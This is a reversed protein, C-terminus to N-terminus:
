KRKIPFYLDLQHETKEKNTDASLRYVFNLAEELLGGMCEGTEDRYDEIYDPNNQVWEMLWKWEHFDGINITHVAYLGGDFKKKSLPYEVEMNEPITVWFEYGYHTNEPSPNPHNFGFVRADPKIKFLNKKKIFDRLLKEANEEPSEGTYHSSAAIFPPLYLIRVNKLKSLEKGANNLEDMYKEEKLGNRQPILSGTLKDAIKSNLILISLKSDSNKELETIFNNLIIRIVSLANIEKNIESINKSFIETINKIDESSLLLAIHKLSFRLKRLFIILYLRSITEKDYVRYSNNEKKRSKILGEKEYYRLMRASIGLNKSVEGITKLDM